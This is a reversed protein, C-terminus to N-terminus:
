ANCTHFEIGDTYISVVTATLPEPMAHTFNGGGGDTYPSVVTIAMLKPMVLIIFFNVQGTM